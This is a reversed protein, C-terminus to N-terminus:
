SGSKKKGRAVATDNRWRKRKRSIRSLSMNPRMAIRRTPMKATAFPFSISQRRVSVVDVVEVISASVTLRRIGVFSNADEEM